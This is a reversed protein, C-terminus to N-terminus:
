LPWRCACCTKHTSQQKTTPDSAAGVLLRISVVVLGCGDTNHLLHANRSRCCLVTHESNSISVSHSYFHVATINCLRSILRSCMHSHCVCVDCSEVKQCNMVIVAITNKRSCFFIDKVTQFSIVYWLLELDTATVDKIKSMCDHDLNIALMHLNNPRM